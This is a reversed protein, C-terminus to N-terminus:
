EAYRYSRPGFHKEADGAKGNGCVGFDLIGSCVGLAALGEVWFAGCGPVFLNVPVDAACVELCLENASRTKAKALTGRLLNFLVDICVVEWLVLDVVSGVAVCGAAATWAALFLTSGLGSISFM